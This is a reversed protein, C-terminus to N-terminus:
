LEARIREFLASGRRYGTRPVLAQVETMRVNHCDELCYLRWGPVPGSNSGGSVQYGSLALRGASTVGVAHVEVVRHRGDYDFSLCLGRHLAAIALEEQLRSRAVRKALRDM